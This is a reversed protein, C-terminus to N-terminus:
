SYAAPELSGLEVPGKRAMEAAPKVGGKGQVRVTRATTAVVIALLAFWWFKIQDFYNAGFFAVVHSFLCAGLIWPVGPKGGSREERKRARGLKKFAIIVITIFLLFTILGGTEGQAIFQNQVDWMDAGWDGNANAGLLWWDGFHRIFQDILMARHYGSSSGVVDVHAVIFWVPANMVLGFGAITFVIGWRVLRMFDRVPWLCIGLVGSMFALVPTSSASTLVMVTSGAIGLMATFPAKGHKWLLAFLPVVTAGFVGAVIAHQFAGQSRVRGERIAPTPDVGGLLGFLNVLRIQEWTMTIAFIVVLFACVKALRFAEAPGRIAFRLLFYGGLSDWLFGFQNIAADTQQYLLMFAVAQCLAWWLFVKDLDCLGGAFVPERKDTLWVYLIKAWGALIVIRPITLHTGFAVVVQGQPTLLILLLCPIILYKRPLAFILAITAFLGGLVAPHLVTDAAGGGFRYDAAYM